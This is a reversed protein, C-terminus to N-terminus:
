AQVLLVVPCLRPAPALRAKVVEVAVREIVRVILVIRIEVDTQGCPFLLFNIRRCILEVRGIDEVVIRDFEDFLPLLRVLWPKQKLLAWFLHTKSFPVHTTGGVFAPLSGACLWELKPPKTFSLFFWVNVVFLVVLCVLSVGVNGRPSM